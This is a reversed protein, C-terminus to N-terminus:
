SVEDTEKEGKLKQNMEQLLKVQTELMKIKVQQEGIIALVNIQSEM